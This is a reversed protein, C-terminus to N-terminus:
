FCKKNEFLHLKTFEVYCENMNERPMEPISKKSVVTTPPRLPNPSRKLKHELWHNWRTHSSIFRRWGWSQKVPKRIAQFNSPKLHLTVLNMQRNFLVPQCNINPKGNIGEILELWVFFDITCSSEYGQFILLGLM